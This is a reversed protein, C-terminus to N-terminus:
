RLRFMLLGEVAELTETAQEGDGVALWWAAAHCWQVALVWARDLEQKM